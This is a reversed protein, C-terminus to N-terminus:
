LGLAQIFCPFGGIGKGGDSRDAIEQSSLPRRKLTLDVPPVPTTEAAPVAIATQAAGEASPRGVGDYARVEVDYIGAPVERVEVALVPGPVSRSQSFPAGADTTGTVRVVHGAVAELPQSWSVDMGGPVATASLGEPTGPAGPDITPSDAVLDFSRPAEDVWDPFPIQPLFSTVSVASATDSLAGLSVSAADPALVLWAGQPDKLALTSGWDAGAQSSGPETVTVTVPSTGVSVDRYTSGLASPLNADVSLRGVPTLDPSRVPVSGYGKAGEEYQTELSANAGAFGLYLEGVGSFGPEPAQAFDHAFDDLANLAWYGSGGSRILDWVEGMSARGAVHESLYKPFIVGGYVRSPAVSLADQFLLGAEVSDAWGGTGSGGGTDPERDDGSGQFFQLYDNVEDFVEDEMWTSSAEMWWDDAFDPSYLRPAGYDLFQIAHFFEHAATVKMAGAIRGDPDENPPVFSLDTNLALYPPLLAVPNGDSDTTFDVTAFGYFGAGLREIYVTTKEAGLATGLIETVGTYSAELASAWQRVVDPVGDADVNEAGVPSGDANTVTDPDWIISFHASEVWGTVSSQAATRRADNERPARRGFLLERAEARRAVPMRALRSVVSRVAPTGCRPLFAAGGGARAGAKRGEADNGCRYAAPLKEPARLAYLWYLDATARDLEGRSVAGEIRSALDPVLAAPVGIPRLGLCLTAVFLLRLPLQPRM